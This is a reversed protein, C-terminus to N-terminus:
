RHAFEALCLMVMDNYIGVANDINSEAKTVEVMKDLMKKIDEEEFM